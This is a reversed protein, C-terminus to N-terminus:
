WWEVGVPKSPLKETCSLIKPYTSIEVWNCPDHDRRSRSESLNVVNRCKIKVYKLGIFDQKCSFKVKKQQYIIIGHFTFLSTVLSYSMKSQSQLATAMELLSWDGKSRSSSSYKM